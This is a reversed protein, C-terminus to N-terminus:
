PEEPEEERGPVEGGLSALEAVYDDLQKQLERQEKPDKAEGIAFQLGSDKIWWELELRRQANPESSTQGQPAPPLKKKKRASGVWRAATSHPVKFHNAVERTPPTGMNEAMRYTNAVEELFEDTIRHRRKRPAPYTAPYERAEAYAESAATQLKDLWQVANKPRYGYPDQPKSSPYHWGAAGPDHDPRGGEVLFEALYQLMYHIGLRKWKSPHVVKRVREYVTPLDEYAATAHVMVIADEYVQFDLFLVTSDTDVGPSIYAHGSRRDVSWADETGIALHFFQPLTVKGEVQVLEPLEPVDDRAFWPYAAYRWGPPPKLFDEMGSM